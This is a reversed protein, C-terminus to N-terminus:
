NQKAKATTKDEPLLILKILNKGSLYTNAAEKLSEPTIKKLSEVYTLIQDPDEQLQYSSSLYGSWFGNQKLQVETSRKEEALFKGIDSAQAGNAKLKNIEDLTAAILKDVNEPGCGFSVTFSFKNKPYKTYSARAGPSYVGSEEERLRDILKIQLVEALADIQNNNETNYTYYGGFVLRVTAKPEQGKYVKKEVLGLPASINLDRAEEVRKTTPLSGLYQELLPKIKEIDFNGVFSFTFDGADAFRDKYVTLVQDAKVQNLKELTPGTRRVNHSGMVASITDSFVSNPDDSRNALVGRQQQIVSQFIEQDLRPQTFYLNILQFATELDKPASSGAIGETRETIYPNISVLKGNLLKPLQISNFSALGSRAVLASAFSASEYLSDPYLSTGGPSFANILIEDNKFDTPKLIVKVGNSLTLETFGVKEDKKEAVIKGPQPKVDMLPKDSVQDVYALVNSSTVEKIWSNVTAEKPLSALDKEPAMIIVDRNVDTLYRKTLGNVEALSIGPLTKKAYNFEYEIGPSATGKLFLKVYEQVYNESSTKDKEKLAAEMGTLYTEKVRNLETSTFGFKKVKELETFVAKFGKELEGPKAVVVATAADLGALFNGIDSGGQLFPPDAQKMLESFRADMMQNYLSRIISNRLDTTTIIETGPHKIIVQAVTYQMEKDTVAIFQNKNLLPIKYEIRKPANAPNKLDSFKDKIMKEMQAVDIDGVVILAQLNPRYWDKYFQTLTAPKFNNLVEDTGIPLRNAYRSQNLIAPLYKNQMREQAGKGLRKEELVVGREKTIESPDLLADQAWDRMIQLGNKLLEPDDTPLPLQYVTEDFSTYANLDAGFRIGSKQLYNVLENKPYNKTGNFSMHEMFHALGQQTDNELISGAKLALYLQVRNKPETNKRIYYTFGNALKGTRVQADLPIKTQASGFFSSMVLAVLMFIIRNPYKM